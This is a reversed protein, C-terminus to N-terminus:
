IVKITMTQDSEVEAQCHSCRANSQVQQLAHVKDAAVLEATEQTLQRCKRCVFSYSVRFSPM